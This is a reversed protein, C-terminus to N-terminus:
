QVEHDWGHNDLDNREDAGAAAKEAVDDFDSLEAELKLACASFHGRCVFDGAANVLVQLLHVIKQFSGVHRGM